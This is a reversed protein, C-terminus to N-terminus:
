TRGTIEIKFRYGSRHVRAQKARGFWYGNRAMVLVTEGAAPVEDECVRAIDVTHNVGVEEHCWFRKMTLTM